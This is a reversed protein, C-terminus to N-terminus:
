RGVVGTCPTDQTRGRSTARDARPLGSVNRRYYVDLEGVKENKYRLACCLIRPLGGNASFDCFLKAPLKTMVKKSADAQLMVPAVVILGGLPCPFSLAGMGVSTPTPPLSSSLVANAGFLNDSAQALV